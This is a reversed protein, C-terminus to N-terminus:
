KSSAFEFTVEIISENAAPEYKWKKVAKTLADVLIPNGGLESVATVSGNAAITIRVRAMGKLGLKRALEPYEPPVSTKLKRGGAEQAWTGAALAVGLVGCALWTGIKFALRTSSKQKWPVNM